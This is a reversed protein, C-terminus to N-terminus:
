ISHEWRRRRKLSRKPHLRRWWKRARPRHWRCSILGAQTDAPSVTCVLIAWCSVGGTGQTLVTMGAEVKLPGYFLARYATVGATFLTSAEEISLAEPASLLRNQDLIMYTQLTGDRDDMGLVGELRFDPAHNGKFWENPHVIVRDGTTWNAGQGVQEIVGAGDLCPILGPKHNGPYQPNHEVVLTDRYNLSVAQIRVLVQHPGPQPVAGLDKLELKGPSIIEWARNPLM